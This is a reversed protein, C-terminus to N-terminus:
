MNQENAPSRHKKGTTKCVNVCVYMYVNMCVHLMCVDMGHVYVHKSVYMIVSMCVRENENVCM